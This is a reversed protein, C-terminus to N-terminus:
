RGSQLTALLGKRAGSGYWLLALPAVLLTILQGSRPISLPRGLRRWTMRVMCLDGLFLAYILLGLALVILLSLQSVALLIIALRLLPGVIWQVLRHGIRALHLPFAARIRSPAARMDTLARLYGSSIFARSRLAAGYNPYADYFVVSRIPFVAEGISSSRWGLALDDVVAPLGGLDAIRHRDLFLGNGVTHICSGLVARLTRPMAALRRDILLSALELRLGLRSHLQGDLTGFVSAQDPAGHNPITLAPQQLLLAGAAAAAGAHKLAASDPRADIDYIGIYRCQPFSAWECLLEPLCQLAYRLQGAKLRWESPADLVHTRDRVAAGRAVDGTTPYEQVVQSLMRSMDELTGSSACHTSAARTFAPLYGFIGGDAKLLEQRCREPASHVLELLHAKDDLERETAIVVIRFLNPPYDLREFYDIAQAVTAQERLVPLLIVFPESPTPAVDGKILWRGAFLVCASRFIASAVTYLVAIQAVLKMRKSHGQPGLDM